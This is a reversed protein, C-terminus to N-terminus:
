YCLEARLGHKRLRNLYSCRLIKYMVIVFATGALPMPLLSQIKANTDAPRYHQLKNNIGHLGFMAHHRWSMGKIILIWRNGITEGWLNVVHFYHSAKINEKNEAQIIQQFFTSINKIRLRWSVWNNYGYCHQYIYELSFFRRSLTQYQSQIIFEFRCWLALATNHIIQWWMYLHQLSQKFLIHSIWSVYTAYTHSYPYFNHQTLM